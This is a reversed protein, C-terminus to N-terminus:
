TIKQEIVTGLVPRAVHGFVGRIRWCARRLANVLYAGWRTYCLYVAISLVCTGNGASNSCLCSCCPPSFVHTALAPFFHSCILLSSTCRRAALGFCTWLTAPWGLPSGLRWAGWRLRCRRPQSLPCRRLTWSHQWLLRSWVRSGRGLCAMFTSWLSM